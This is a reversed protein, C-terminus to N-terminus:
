PPSCRTTLLQPSPSPHTHLTVQFALEVPNDPDDLNYLLITRGGMNISVTNEQRDQPKVDRSPDAKQTAFQIDVPEYKLETQELTDGSATSYNTAPTCWAPLTPLHHSPLGALVCLM